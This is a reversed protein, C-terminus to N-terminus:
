LCVWVLNLCNGKNYVLIVLLTESHKQLPWIISLTTCIFVQVSSHSQNMQSGWQGRNPEGPSTVLVMFLSYQRDVVMLGFGRVSGVTVGSVTSDTAACDFCHSLASYAQLSLSDEQKKVSIILLHLFPLPPFCKMAEYEKKWTDGLRGRM